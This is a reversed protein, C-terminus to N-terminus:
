AEEGAAALARRMLIWASLASVTSMVVAVVLGSALWGALLLLPAGLVLASGEIAAATQPRGVGRLVDGAVQRVSLGWAAPALAISLLVSDAYSSGFLLHIAPWALASALAGAVMGGLAARRLALRASSLRTTAETEASIRPLLENGIANIAPSAMQSWTSAIAYVGLAAPSATISLAMQDVRTNTMAPVVWAANPIAYRHLARRDVPPTRRTATAAGRRTLRRMIVISALGTTTVSVGYVILARDVTIEDLLMLVLIGGTYVPVQLARAMNWLRLESGYLASTFVGGVLAPVLLAFGLLYHGTGARDLDLALVVAVALGLVVVTQRVVGGLALGVITSLQDPARGLFYVVAANLGGESLALLYTMWVFVAAYVGRDEPGLGRALFVGGVAAGGAIALNTASTTLLRSGAVRTLLGGRPAGASADLDSGDHGKM